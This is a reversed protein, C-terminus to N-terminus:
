FIKDTENWLDNRTSLYAIMEDRIVKPTYGHSRILVKRLWTRKIPTLRYLLKDM